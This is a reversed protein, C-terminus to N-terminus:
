HGDLEEEGDVDDIEDLRGFEVQVRGPGLEGFGFSHRAGDVDLTVRDQDAHIIRGKIEAPDAPADRKKDQDKGSVPVIVLRGAARRWHRPQTLPRDVGPSTVELTYPDEGMVNKADLKASVERSVEAIDDLSLGGDTDVVIRLVIRRGASSLKVAELDIEMAALVPQIVNTL